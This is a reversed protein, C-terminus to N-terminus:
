ADEHGGEIEEVLPTTELFQKIGIEVLDLYENVKKLTEVNTKIKPSCYKNVIEGGFLDNIDAVKMMIRTKLKIDEPAADSTLIAEMMKQAFIKKAKLEAKKEINQDKNMEFM